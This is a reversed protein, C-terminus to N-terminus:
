RHVREKRLYVVEDKEVRVLVDGANKAPTTVRKFAEQAKISLTPNAPRRRPEITHTHM